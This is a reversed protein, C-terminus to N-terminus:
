APQMNYTQNCMRIYQRTVIFVFMAHCFLKHNKKVILIHKKNLVNKCASFCTNYCMKVHLLLLTLNGLRLSVDLGQKLVNLSFYVVEVVM